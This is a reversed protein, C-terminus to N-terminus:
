KQSVAGYYWQQLRRPRVGVFFALRLWWMLLVTRLIGQNEWRRSSTIVPTPWILPRGQQRLRRSLDVDEMLELAAFGKLREFVARKVFQCQDGTAIATLRSRWCMMTEIVRFATQRGSLRVAFFGWQACSSVLQQLWLEIDGPLVTDVHLFLLWEGRAHRAGANMQAARGLPATLVTDALDTALAVTQDHSGGDVVILEVGKSRLPQLRQLCNEIAQAENWCPIVISVTAPSSTSTVSRAVVVAARVPRAAM